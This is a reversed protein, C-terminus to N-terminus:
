PVAEGNGAMRNQWFRTGDKYGSVSHMLPQMSLWGREQVCLGVKGGFCVCTWEWVRCPDSGKWGMPSSEIELVM